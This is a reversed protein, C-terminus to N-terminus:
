AEEANADDLSAPSMTVRILEGKEQNEIVSVRDLKQMQSVKKATLTARLPIRIGPVLHKIELAGNPNLTSNDPVRVVVPVPNKGDLNRKAQSNLAAQTPPETGEEWWATDVVEWEGYYPDNGGATGVLGEESRVYAHTAGDMGYMTVVIDGIFDQETVDPTKAFVTHTDFLLISRGVVTYDMGSRYAMADIDDYVTGEYAPTDKSTRSDDPTTFAKVWPLVNIPPDLAEKRVLEGNLMNLSRQITSQINPYANNYRNRKATRYAYHMVDRAEVEVYTRHFGIRTVPGEWVRENGRVIVLEHRNPEIGALMEACEANPQETLVNGFSIDDRVREWTVQTLPGIQGIRRRGGRDYIYAQHTECNFSM